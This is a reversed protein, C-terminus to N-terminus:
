ETATRFEEALRALEALAQQQTGRDLVPLRGRAILHTMGLKERLIQVQEGAYEPDGVIAWDQVQRKRGSADSEGLLQLVRKQLRRDRSVFLTRMVPRARPQPQGAEALAADYGAYNEELEALTEVPSALYPLGADAAQRIALPGFAAVWLSPWPKQVPLPALYIDSGDANSAIARGRWAEQMRALNRTFIRRKDEKKVGFATFLSDRFGRGLGLLLRGESLQDLVAVEEAAQLPHRVSILYSSVGLQICRTGAAAAALMMMPCPLPMTETFHNEPLWFSEFGLSEAFEAQGALQAATLGEGLYSATVGTHM